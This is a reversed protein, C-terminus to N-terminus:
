TMEYLWQSKGGFSFCVHMGKKPVTFNKLRLSMVKLTVFINKLFTGWLIHFYRDQPKIEKLFTVETVCACSIYTSSTLLWYIRGLMKEKMHFFNRPTGDTAYIFAMQSLFTKAERHRMYFIFYRINLTILKSPNPVTNPVCSARKKKFVLFDSASMNNLFVQTSVRGGEWQLNISTKTWSWTCWTSWPNDSYTKQLLSM